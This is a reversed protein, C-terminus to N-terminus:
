RRSCTPANRSTASGRGAGTTPITSPAVHARCLLLAGEVPCDVPVQLSLAREPAAIDMLPVDKVRQTAEQLAISGGVEILRDELRPTGRLGRERDVCTAIALEDYAVETEITLAALGSAED